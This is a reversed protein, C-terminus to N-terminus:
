VTGVAGCLSLAGRGQAPQHQVRRGFRWDRSRPFSVAAGGHWGVAGGVVDRDGPWAWGANRGDASPDYRRAPGRRRGAIARDLDGPHGEQDPCPGDGGRGTRVRFHDRSQRAAADNPVQGGLYLSFFDYGSPASGRFSVILMRPQCIGAIGTYCYREDTLPTLSVAPTRNHM